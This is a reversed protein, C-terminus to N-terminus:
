YGASIAFEWAANWRDLHPRGPRWNRLYYEWGSMSTSPLPSPDTYLLLRAFAAALTDNIGIFEWVARSSVKISFWNCVFTAPAHTLKHNIVGAAGGGREFQWFGRAPGGDMQLRNHFGSEQFGIALLMRRADISDYNNGTLHELLGLGPAIIFRDIGVADM